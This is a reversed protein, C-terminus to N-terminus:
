EACIFYKCEVTALVISGQESTSNKPCADTQKRKKSSVNFEEDFLRRKHPLEVKDKSSATGPQPHKHKLPFVSSNSTKEGTMDKAPKINDKHTTIYHRHMNVSWKSLYLCSACQFFGDVTKEFSMLRNCNSSPFQKRASNKKQCISETPNEAVRQEVTPVKPLKLGLKEYKVDNDAHHKKCHKRVSESYGSTFACYACKFNKQRLHVANFHGLVAYRKRSEFQCKSCQYRGRGNKSVLTDSEQCKETIKDTDNKSTSVTPNQKAPSASLNVDSTIGFCRKHQKSKHKKYIKWSSLNIKKNPHLEKCHKVAESRETSKYTCYKCKHKYGPASRVSATSTSPRHLNKCTTSSLSSPLTVSSHLLNSSVPAASSCTINAAEVTDKTAQSDSLLIDKNIVHLDQAPTGDNTDSTNDKNQRQVDTAETLDVSTQIATEDTLTM